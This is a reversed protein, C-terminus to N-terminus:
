LHILDSRTDLSGQHAKLTLDQTKSGTERSGLVASLSLQPFYSLM